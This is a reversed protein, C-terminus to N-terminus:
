SRRFARAPQRRALAGFRAGLMRPRALTPCFPARPCLGRLGRQGWFKRRYLACESLARMAMNIPWDTGMRLTHEPPGFKEVQKGRTRTLGAKVHILRVLGSYTRTRPSSAESRLHRSRLQSCCGRGTGGVQQLCDRLKFRLNYPLEFSGHPLCEARVSAGIVSIRRRCRTISTCSPGSAM